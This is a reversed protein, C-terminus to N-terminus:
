ADKKPIKGASSGRTTIKTVIFFGRPSTKPPVTAAGGQARIAASIKGASFTSGAPPRVNSKGAGGAPLRAATVNRSTAADVAIFRSVAAPRRARKSPLPLRTKHLEASLPVGGSAPLTTRNFNPPPTPRMGLTTPRETRSAM